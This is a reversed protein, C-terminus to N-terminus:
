LCNLFVLNLQEFKDGLVCLSIIGNMRWRVTVCVVALLHNTTNKLM